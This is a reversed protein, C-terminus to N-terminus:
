DDHNHFINSVQFLHATQPLNGTLDEHVVPLIGSHEKGRVSSQRQYLGNPHKISAVKQLHICPGSSVWADTDWWVRPCNASSEAWKKDQWASLWKVLKRSKSRETHIILVNEINNNAGLTKELERGWRIGDLHHSCFSREYAEEQPTWHNEKRILVRVRIRILLASPTDIVQSLHPHFVTCRRRGSLPSSNFCEAKRPIGEM